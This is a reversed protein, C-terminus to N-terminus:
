LLPRPQEIFAYHCLKFNLPVLVASCYHRLTGLYRATVCTPNLTPNDEEALRRRFKNSVIQREHAGNSHSHEKARREVGAGVVGL